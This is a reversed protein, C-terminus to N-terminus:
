RGQDAIWALGTVGIIGLVSAPIMLVGATEMWRQDGIWVSALACATAALFPTIAIMLLVTLKRTKM